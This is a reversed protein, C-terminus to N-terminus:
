AITILATITKEEKTMEAITCQTTECWAKLDNEFAPDDAVIHIEDGASLSRRAKALEIIPRPCRQGKADIEKRM